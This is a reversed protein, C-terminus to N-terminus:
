MKQALKRNPLMHKRAAVRMRTTKNTLQELVIKVKSEDVNGEIIGKQRDETEISGMIKTVKLASSWLKEFGKDSDGQIADDSIAYGGVAGVAGVILYPCGSSFLCFSLLFLVLIIKRM